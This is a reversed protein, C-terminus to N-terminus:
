YSYARSALIAHLPAPAEAYSGQKESDCAWKFLCTYYAIKLYSQFAMTLALTIMIILGALILAAILSAKALALFILLALGVSIIMTMFGLVNSVLALGVYGIGLQLLNSRMIYTARGVADGMKRDELVIAPLIFFTATTWVREIFGIIMSAILGFVGRRQRRIASRITSVLASVAAVMLISIGNNNAAAWARKKDTQGSTIHQHVLHITVASFFYTVMYNLLVVLFLAAYLVFDTRSNKSSSYIIALPLGLFLGILVNAGLAYLSPLVLGPNERAMGVAQKLFQWGLAIRGFFDPQEHEYVVSRGSSQYYNSNPQAYGQSHYGPQSSSFTGAKYEYGDNPKEQQRSSSSEEAKAKVTSSALLFDVSVTAAPVQQEAQKQEQQALWSEAGALAPYNPDIMRAKQIAQRSQNLDETTFALWLLINPDNPYTRLLQALIARAEQKRGTNALEVAHNFSELDANQM